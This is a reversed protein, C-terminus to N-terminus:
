GSSISLIFFFCCSPTSFHFDFGLFDCILFPRSLFFNLEPLFAISLLFGLFFVCSLIRLKKCIAPKCAVRPTYVSSSSLLVVM